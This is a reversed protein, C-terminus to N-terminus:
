SPPELLLLLACAQAVRKWLQLGLLQIYVLKAESTTKIHWSLTAQQCLYVTFQHLLYLQAQSQFLQQTRTTALQVKLGHM